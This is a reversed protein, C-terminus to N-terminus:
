NWHLRNNGINETNAVDPFLLTITIITLVIKTQFYSFLKIKEANCVRRICLHQVLVKIILLVQYLCRWGVSWPIFNYETTAEGFPM